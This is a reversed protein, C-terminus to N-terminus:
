AYLIIVFIILISISSYIGAIIDDFVVGFGNKIKKDILNIPYPKLIDFFRFFLFSIFTLIFFNGSDSFSVFSYFILIPISQGIFEDIVIEKADKEKFHRSLKDILVISIITTLFLFSILLYLNLKLTFFFIYILCTIFSAMTGPIYKSYGIGCMTIINLGFFKIM